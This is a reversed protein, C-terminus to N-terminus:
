NENWVYKSAEKSVFVEQNKTILVAGINNQECYKKARDLGMILLVKAFVDTYTATDGIVTATILDNNLSAKDEPVIIHNKLSNGNLNEKANWTRKNVGSTAVSCDKIKLLPLEANFEESPKEIEIAWFDYNKRLDAGKCYMDGGLNVIFNSYKAALLATILDAAYGKGIGGLDIKLNIPKFIKIGSILVKSFDQDIDTENLESGDNYGANKSLHYGENKLTPLIAPNFIGETRIYFDKATEIIHAFEKDTEFETTNNFRSLESDNIFRSYKGEFEKLRKIMLQIDTQIEEESITDSCVSIFIDTSMIENNLTIESFNM